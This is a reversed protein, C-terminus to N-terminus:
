AAFAVLVRAGQPWKEDYPTTVVDRTNALPYDDSNSAQATSGDWSSTMLGVSRSSRLELRCAKVRKAKEPDKSELVRMLGEIYRTPNLGALPNEIGCELVVEGGSPPNAAWLWETAGLRLAKKGICYPALENIVASDEIISTSM